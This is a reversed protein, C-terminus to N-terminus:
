RGHYWAMLVRNAANTMLTEANPRHRSWTTYVYRTPKTGSRAIKRMVGWAARDNERSGLPLGFKRSTWYAIPNFPPMHPRTGDEVFPAYLSAAGIPGVRALTRDSSYVAQTSTRLAATAGTPTAKVLNYLMYNAGEAVAARQMDTLVRRHENNRLSQVWSGFVYSINIM